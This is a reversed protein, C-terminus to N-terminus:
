ALIQPRSMTIACHGGTSAISGESGGAVREAARLVSARFCTMASRPYSPTMAPMQRSSSPVRAFSRM